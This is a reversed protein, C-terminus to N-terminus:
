STGLHGLLYYQIAPFNPTSNFQEKQSYQSNETGMSVFCCCKNDLKKMQLLLMIGSAMYLIVLQKVNCFILYQVQLLASSWVQTSLWHREWQISRFLLAYCFCSTNACLLLKKIEM